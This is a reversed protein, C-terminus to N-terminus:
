LLEVSGALANCDVKSTAKSWRRTFVGSGPATESCSALPVGVDTFLAPPFEYVVSCGVWSYGIWWWPGRVTLFFAIDLDSKPLPATRHPASANNLTWQVMTADGYQPWATGASCISTMAAACHAPSDIPPSWNNFFAWAWSGSNVLTETVVDMLAHWGDTIATTDAQTLGMDDVCHFEEESPGGLLSHDCFGDPPQWSPDM